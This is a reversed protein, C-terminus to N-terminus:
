GVLKELFAHVDGVTKLKAAEEDTIDGDIENELDVVMEMHDLSDLKLDEALRAAPVIDTEMAPSFRKLIELVKSEVNEKKM